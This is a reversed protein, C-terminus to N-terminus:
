LIVYGQFSNLPEALPPAPLFNSAFDYVTEELLKTGNKCMLERTTVSPRADKGAGNGGLKSHMLKKSSRYTRFRATM